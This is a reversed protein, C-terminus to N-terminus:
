EADAEADRSIAPMDPFKIPAVNDLAKQVEKPSALDIDWGDVDVTVGNSVTRDIEDQLQGSINDAYDIASQGLEPDALGALRGFLRAFNVVTVDMDQQSRTVDMSQQVYAQQLKATADAFIKTRDYTAQYNQLVSQAIARYQEQQQEASVKVEAAWDEFEAQTELEHAKIEAVYRGSYAGTFTSPRFELPALMEAAYLAAACLMVGLAMGVGASIFRKQPPAVIQFPFAPNPTQVAQAEGDQRPADSEYDVSYQSNSM